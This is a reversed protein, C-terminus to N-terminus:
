LIDYEMLLDSNVMSGIMAKRRIPQTVHSKRTSANQWIDDSKGRRLLKLDM